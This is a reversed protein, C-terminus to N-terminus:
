DYPKENGKLLEGHAMMLAVGFYGVGYYFFFFLLVKFYATAFTSFWGMSTQSAMQVEAFKVIIAMVLLLVSHLFREGINRFKDARKEDDKIRSSLSLTLSSLTASIAISASALKYFEEAPVGQFENLSFHFVIYFCVWPPGLVFLWWLTSKFIRAFINKIKAM